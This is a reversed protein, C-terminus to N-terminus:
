QDVESGLWTLENNDRYEQLEANKEATLKYTELAKPKGIIPGYSAIV